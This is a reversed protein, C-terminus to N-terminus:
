EWVESFVRAFNGGLLKVIRGEPWGRAALDEALRQMRRPENYDLVV